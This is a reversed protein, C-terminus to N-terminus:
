IAENKIYKWKNKILKSGRRFSSYRKSKYLLVIDRFFESRLFMM